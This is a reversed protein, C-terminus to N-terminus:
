NRENKSIIGLFDACEYLSCVFDEKMLKLKFM